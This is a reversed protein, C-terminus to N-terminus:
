GHPLLGKVKDELGQLQGALAEVEEGPSTQAGIMRKHGYNMLSMLLAAATPWDLVPALAIKTILVIVAINSISLNGQADTLNFFQLIKSLM